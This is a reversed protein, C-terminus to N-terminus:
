KSILTSVSCLIIFPTSLIGSIVHAHHLATFPCGIVWDCDTACSSSTIGIRVHLFQGSTPAVNGEWTSAWKCSSRKRRRSLVTCIQKISGVKITEPLLIINLTLGKELDLRWSSSIGFLPILAPGLTRTTLLVATFLREELINRWHHVLSSWTGILHLSILRHLGSPRGTSFALCYMGEHLFTLQLEVHLFGHGEPHLPLHFASCGGHAKHIKLREGESLRSIRM